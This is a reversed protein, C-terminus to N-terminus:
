NERQKKLGDRILKAACAANVATCGAQIMTWKKKGAKYNVGTLVACFAMMGLVFCLAAKDTKSFVKKNKM